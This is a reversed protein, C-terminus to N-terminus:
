VAANTVQGNKRYNMLLRVGFRRISRDWPTFRPLQYIDSAANSVGTSTTVATSFGIEKLIAVHESTYDRNPVGNPYAFLTVPEGILSELTIKGKEIEAFAKDTSIKSLIPHSVTHGGIQMGQKRLYVIDEDRMMLNEPLTVSAKDAIEGCYDLRQQMELYKLKDILNGLTLLRAERSSMDHVALGLSALDLTTRPTSRCVEIITDNWMRGGNLFGTAIFFTACLSYKQLIPLAVIRNDLYGDDFTIALSRAPLSNNQLRVVAEDLPLVNFNGSIFLMQEDFQDSTVNGRRFDDYEPLVQHYILISLSADGGAPSLLTAPIKWIPNSV